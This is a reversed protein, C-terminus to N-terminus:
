NTAEALTKRVLAEDVGDVLEVRGIAAPLVFRIAGGASKKDVRMLAVLDCELL